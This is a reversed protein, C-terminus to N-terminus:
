KKGFSRIYRVLDLPNVESKEHEAIFEQLNKKNLSRGEAIWLASLVLINVNYLYVKPIKEIISVIRQRTPHPMDSYSSSLVGEVQDLTAEEPTRQAKQLGESPGTTGGLSSRREFSIQQLQKYDPGLEVDEDGGPEEDEDFSPEEEEEDGEREELPEDDGYYDEDYTQSYEWLDSQWDDDM